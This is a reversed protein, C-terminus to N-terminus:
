EALTIPIDITPLDPSCATDAVDVTGPRDPPATFIVCVQMQVTSNGFGYGDIQKRVAAAVEAQEAASTRFVEVTEKGSLTAQLVRLKAPADKPSSQVLSEAMQDRYQYVAKRLADAAVAKQRDEESSCGSGLLFLIAALAGAVLRRIVAGKM